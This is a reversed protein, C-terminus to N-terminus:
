DLLGLLRVTPGEYMYSGGLGFWDAVDWRALKDRVWRCDEASGALALPEALMAIVEIDHEFVRVQSGLRALEERTAAVDGLRAHCGARVVSAYPAARRLDRIAPDLRALAAPLEA